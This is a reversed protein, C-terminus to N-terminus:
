EIGQEWIQFPKSYSLFLLLLLEGFVAPIFPIFIRWNFFGPFGFVVPYMILCLFILIIVTITRLRNKHLKKMDISFILKGKVTKDNHGTLIIPVGNPNREQEV